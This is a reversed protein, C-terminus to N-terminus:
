RDKFRRMKCCYEFNRVWVVNKRRSWNVTKEWAQSSFDQIDVYPNYHIDPEPFAFCKEEPFINYFKEEEIGQWTAYYFDANPFKEKLVSVNRKQLNFASKLIGSICVAIKM